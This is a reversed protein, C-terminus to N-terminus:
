LRGQARLWEVERRVGELLGVYDGPRRGLVNPGECPVDRLAVGAVGALETLPRLHTASATVRLAAHLVRLVADPAPIRRTERGLAQDVAGLVAAFDHEEIDHGTEITPRVPDPSSLEAAIVEGLSGAYLLCKRQRMSGMGLTRGRAAMGILRAMSGRDYEGYLSAAHLIWVSCRGECMGLLRDEAERKTAIYHRGADDEQQDLRGMTSVFVFTSAGRRIAERALLLTTDINAARYPERDGIGLRPTLAACHVVAGFTPLRRIDAERTLDAQFWDNHETRSVPLVALGRSLLARVVHAGAVGSAGTVLTKM